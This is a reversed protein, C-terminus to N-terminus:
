KRSKLSQLLQQTGNDAPSFALLKEAWSIAADTKGLDRNITTLALLIDRDNPHLEHAKELVTIGANAQGTSNLAVGYVYAYRATEPALDVAKKLAALATDRGFVGYM